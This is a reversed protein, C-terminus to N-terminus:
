CPLGVFRSLRNFLLAMLKGVFDMSDFSHNKWYDHVATLTPGYLLSNNLRQGEKSRYKQKEALTMSKKIITTRYYLRFDRLGIGGSRNKM